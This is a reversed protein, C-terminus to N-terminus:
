RYSPFSFLVKKIPKNNPNVSTIWAFHGTALGIFTIEILKMYLEFYQLIQM